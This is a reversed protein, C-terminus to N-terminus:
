HSNEERKTWTDSLSFRSIKPKKRKKFLVILETIDGHRHFYTRHPLFHLCLQSFQNFIRM